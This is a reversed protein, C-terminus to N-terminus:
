PWDKTFKVTIEIRVGDSVHRSDFSLKYKDDSLAKVFYEYEDESIIGQFFANSLEAYGNRKTPDVKM